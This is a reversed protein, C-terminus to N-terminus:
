ASDVNSTIKLITMAIVINMQKKLRLLEMAPLKNSYLLSIETMRAIPHVFSTM